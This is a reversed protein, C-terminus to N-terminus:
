AIPGRSEPELGSLAVIGLAMMTVPWLMLGPLGAGVGGLVLVAELVVTTASTALAVKACATFDLGLYQGRVAVLLSGVIGAYLLCIAFDFLSVVIAYLGVLTPHV